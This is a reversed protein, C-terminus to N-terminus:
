SDKAIIISTILTIINIINITTIVIIVNVVVFATLFLWESEMIYIYNYLPTSRCAHKFCMVHMHSRVYTNQGTRSESYEIREFFM